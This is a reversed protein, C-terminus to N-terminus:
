RCLNPAIAHDRLWQVRRILKLTREEIDKATGRFRQQVRYRSARECFVLQFLVAEDSSLAQRLAGLRASARASEFRFYSPDSKGGSQEIRTGSMIASWNMGSPAGYAASLDLDNLIEGVHFSLISRTEDDPIAGIVRSILSKQDSTRPKSSREELIESSPLASSGSQGDGKWVLRAPHFEGLKGLCGEAWLVDVEAATLTGIPRTRTDKGRWVQWGGRGDKRLSGGRQLARILRDM